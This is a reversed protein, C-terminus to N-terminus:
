LHTVSMKRMRRLLKTCKKFNRILTSLFWASKKQLNKDPAERHHISRHQKLSKNHLLIQQRTNGGIQIDQVQATLKIKHFARIRWSHPSQKFKPKPDAIKILKEKNRTTLNSKNLSNPHLSEQARRFTFQPWIEMRRKKARLNPMTPSHSHSIKTRWAMKRTEWRPTWWRKKLNRRRKNSNCSLNSRRKKM